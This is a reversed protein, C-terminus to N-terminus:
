RSLISGIPAVCVNDRNELEPPCVKRPGSRRQYMPPSGSNLVGELGGGGTAGFSGSGLLVTAPRDVGATPAPPAPLPAGATSRTMPVSPRSSASPVERADAGSGGADQGQAAFAMSALALLIWRTTMRAM